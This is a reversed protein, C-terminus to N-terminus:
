HLVFLPLRNKAARKKAETSKYWNKTQKITVTETGSGYFYCCFILQAVNFSRNGLHINESSLDQLCYHKRFNFFFMSEFVPLFM